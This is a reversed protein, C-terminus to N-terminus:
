ATADSFETVCRKDWRYNYVTQLIIQNRGAEGVTQRKWHAQASYKKRSGKTGGASLRHDVLHEICILSFFLHIFPKQTPLSM